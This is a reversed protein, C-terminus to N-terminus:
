RLAALLAQRVDESGLPQPRSLHRLILERSNAEPTSVVLRMLMDAARSAMGPGLRELVRTAEEPSLGLRQTAALFDRASSEHPRLISHPSQAAMRQLHEPTFGREALVRLAAPNARSMAEAQTASFGLRQLRESMQSVRAERDNYAVIGTALAAAIGGAIGITGGIAVGAVRLAGGVIQVGNAALAAAHDIRGEQLLRSLSDAASLASGALGFAHGAGRAVDAFRGGVNALASLAHGAGSAATAASLRLGAESLARQLVESGTPAQRVYTDLTQAATDVARQAWQAEDQAVHAMPHHQIDATAGALRSANDRVYTALDNAAAEAAAYAPNTRRFDDAYAQLETPTLTHQLRVLHTGLETEARRVAENARNLAVTRTEVGSRVEMLTRAAEVGRQQLVQPSAALAAAADPAAAPNRRTVQPLSASSFNSGGTLNTLNRQARRDLAPEIVPEPAEPAEATQGATRQVGAAGSRGDIRTVM